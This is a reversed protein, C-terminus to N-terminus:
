LACTLPQEKRPEGWGLAVGDLIGGPSENNEVCLIADHLVEIPPAPQWGVGLAAFVAIKGKRYVGVGACYVVDIGLRHLCRNRQRLARTRRLWDGQLHVGSQWRM